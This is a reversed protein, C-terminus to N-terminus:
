PLREIGLSHYEPCLLGVRNELEDHLVSLVQVLNIRKDISKVYGPCPRIDAEKAGCCFRLEPRVQHLIEQTSAVM